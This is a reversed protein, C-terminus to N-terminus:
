NSVAGVQKLFRSSLRVTNAERKKGMKYTEQLSRRFSSTKRDKDINSFDLILCCELVTPVEKKKKGSQQM